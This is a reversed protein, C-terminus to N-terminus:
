ADPRPKFKPLLLGPGAEEFVAEVAMGIEVKEVPCGVINSVLRPGEQLDVWAVVYPIENEFGRAGRGVVERIVTFSYVKGRGSMPTWELREGGCEMCLPRPCWVLAGCSVCRQIVLEKRAAAEWFPKTVPTIQPLPKPIEERKEAM